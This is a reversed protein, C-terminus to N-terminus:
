SSKRSNRNTLQYWEMRWVAEGCRSGWKRFLSFLFWETFVAYLGRRASLNSRHERVQLTLCGPLGDKREQNKEVIWVTIIKNSAPVTFKLESKWVQLHLKRRAVLNRKETQITYLLLLGTLFTLHCRELFFRIMILKFVYPMQKMKESNKIISKIKM